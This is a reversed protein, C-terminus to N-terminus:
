FIASKMFYKKMLDKENLDEDKTIQLSHSKQETQALKQRGENLLKINEQFQKLEDIKKAHADEMLKKKEETQRLSEKAAALRLNFGEQEASVGAVKEDKHATALKNELGKITGKLADAKNYSTAIGDALDNIEQQMTAQQVLNQTQTRLFSDNKIKEAIKNEDLFFKYQETSKATEGAFM